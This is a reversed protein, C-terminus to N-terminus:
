SKNNYIYHYKIILIICGDHIWTIVSRPQLSIRFNSILLKFFVFIFKITLVTICVDKLLGFVAAPTISTRSVEVMVTDPEVIADTAM